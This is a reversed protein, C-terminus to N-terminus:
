IYPSSSFFKRTSAPITFSWSPLNLAPWSIAGNGTVAGIEKIKFWSGSGDYNKVSPTTSKSMYVTAPGAHYIANDLAFGVSSGAVVTAVQTTPGASLTGTNCRM